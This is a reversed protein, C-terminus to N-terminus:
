HRFFYPNYYSSIGDFTTVVPSLKFDVRMAVPKDNTVHVEQPTSSQYSCSRLPPFVIHIYLEVSLCM